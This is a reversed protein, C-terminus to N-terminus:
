RFDRGRPADQRQNECFPSQHRRYLLSSVDQVGAPREVGLGASRHDQAGKWGQSTQAGLPTSPESYSHEAPASKQAAAPKPPAAPSQVPVKGGPAPPQAPVPATKQAQPGRPSEKGAPDPPVQKVEPQPPQKSAVYETEMKTEAPPSPPRAERQAATKKPSSKPAPRWPGMWWAIAAANLVLAALVVYIWVRRPRPKTRLHGQSALLTVTEEQRRKQELKKLADLIYSM